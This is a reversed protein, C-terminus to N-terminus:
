FSVGKLHHFKPLSDPDPSFLVLMIDYRWKREEAPLRRLYQLAVSRVRRKQAPTVRRYVAAPNPRQSAKVEVFVIVPGDRAIIDIEWKRRKWNRELIRYGHSRLYRIAEAEGKAGIRHRPDGNESPQEQSNM